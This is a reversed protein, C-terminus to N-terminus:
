QDDEEKLEREIQEITPLSSKLEDPLNQTIHQQWESVGIPKNFGALAYEVILNNKEKVLLLGITQKDDPHRLQEDVITQYMNLQSVFGPNFKGMKLEIVVYCRLTLHYFLLDAYFDEDGVELHVQRGVFAFGQGLELLFHELHELLSAELETERRPSDTGIFDFLYPDKFIQTAMDSQIPPLTTPFNNQSIGQRHHLGSEIQIQLVDRSWGNTLTQSAYWLREEPTKLKDLLTLNSGWALHAVTRQVFEQDPWSDAFKRMYKLNRPSFGSMEPFAKKLDYSLRDIVKAGWAQKGQRDLIERGIQWYLLIMQRNASQVTRLRAQTIEQKLKALLAVYSEPMEVLDVPAPMVANPHKPNGRTKRDKSM